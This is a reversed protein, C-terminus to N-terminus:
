VLRYRDDIAVGIVVLVFGIVVMVASFSITDLLEDLTARRLKREFRFPAEDDVRRFPGRNGAVLGLVVLFAGLGYFGLSIARNLTAHSVLGLPIATVLVLASSGAILGLLRIAAGAVGSRRWLSQLM